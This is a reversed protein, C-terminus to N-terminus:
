SSAAQGPRPWGVMLPIGWLGVSRRVLLDGKAGGVALHHMGGIPTSSWGLARAAFGVLASRLLGRASLDWVYVIQARVARM